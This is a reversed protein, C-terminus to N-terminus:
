ALLDLLRGRPETAPTAYISTGSDDPWLRPDRRDVYRAVPESEVTEPLPDAYEAMGKWHDFEHRDFYRTLTTERSGGFAPGHDVTRVIVTKARQKATRSIM